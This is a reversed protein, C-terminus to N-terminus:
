CLPRFGTRSSVRLHIHTILYELSFRVLREDFFEM